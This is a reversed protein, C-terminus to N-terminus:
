ESRRPGSISGEKSITALEILPMLGSELRTPELSQHTLPL